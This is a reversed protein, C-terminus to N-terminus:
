VGDTPGRKYIETQNTAFAPFAVAAFWESWPKCGVLHQPLATVLARWRAMDEHVEIGLGDADALLLCLRDVAFLDRKFAIVRHIEIWRMGLPETNKRRLDTVTLGASDMAIAFRYDRPSPPIGAAEERLLREVKLRVSRPRFWLRNVLMLVLIAVWVSSVVTLRLARDSTMRGVYSTVLLALMVLGSLALSDWSISGRM